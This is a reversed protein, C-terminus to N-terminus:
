VAMALFAPKVPSTTTGTPGRGSIALSCYYFFKYITRTLKPGAFIHRFCVKVSLILFKM